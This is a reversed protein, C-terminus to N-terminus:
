KYSSLKLQKQSALLKSSKIIASSDYGFRKKIVAEVYKLMLEKSSFTMPKSSFSKRSAERVVWVGLPMLYEDTIIRFVLVSSQRRLSKLQELVPLRAAYYGGACNLAYASRGSYSEYDSCFDNGKGYAEFLEYSWVDPFLMVFYHNGLYSGQYLMFEGVPEFDKIDSILKKGVIDDTATIAFRTPVLRRNTKLGVTGMSLIKSLFNTDFGSKFLYDIADVAKFDPESYVKEVKHHIKPNSAIEVKKLEVAPGVPANFTSFSLAMSPSKSLSIDLDVPKSSLAVEKAIDVIRSSGKVEAKSRSNVLSARYDVVGSIGLNQRAWYEPADYKWVEEDSIGPSLLGVNVHPYGFRGVFPAPSSGFLHEKNLNDKIKGFVSKRACFPCIFDAYYASPFLSGCSKCFATKFVRM